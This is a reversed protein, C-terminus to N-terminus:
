HRCEQETGGGRRYLVVRSPGSEVPHKDCISMVSSPVGSADVGRAGQPAQDRGDTTVKSRAVTVDGETEDDEPDRKLSALHDEGHQESDSM